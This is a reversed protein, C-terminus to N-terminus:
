VTECSLPGPTIGAMQKAGQGMAIIEEEPVFFGKNCFQGSEVQEGKDVTSPCRRGDLM